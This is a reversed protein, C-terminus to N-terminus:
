FAGTVSSNISWRSQPGTSPFNPSSHVMAPFGFLGPKCHTQDLDDYRIMIHQKEIKCTFYGGGNQSNGSIACADLLQKSQVPTDSFLDNYLSLVQDILFLRTKSGYQEDLRLCILKCRQRLVNQTVHYQNNRNTNPPWINPFRSNSLGPLWVQDSINRHRSEHSNSTHRNLNITEMFPSDRRYITKSRNSFGSSTDNAHNLIISDNDDDDLLAKSGMVESLESVTSTKRQEDKYATTGSPRQIPSPRKIPKAVSSPVVRSTNDELVKTRNEHLGLIGNPNKDEMHHHHHHHHHHFPHSFSTSSIPLSHYNNLNGSLPSSENKYMNSSVKPLRLPSSSYDYQQNSSTSPLSFIGGSVNNIIPHPTLPQYTSHTSSLNQNFTTDLGPPHQLTSNLNSSMHPSKQSTNQINFSSHSQSFIISSSSLSNDSEQETKLSLFSSNLPSSVSSRIEKISETTGHFTEQNEIQPSRNLFNVSIMAEMIKQKQSDKKNDNQIKNENDKTEKVEKVEKIEKVEKPEKPEKIEKSEKIDKVEKTEKIDKVEKTEKLDKEKKIEKKQREKEAEKRKREKEIEKEKNQSQRRKEEELAKKEAERKLRLEEKKRKAEELRKEEEIRLANEEALREAEKRAKEQDKLQKQLKKKDKKREKEKAKKLEREEKLRNEEELEELLRQQREEAVKQRYATLVRQEFMRAAFIQFMRRGEEIRQEEDLTNMEDDNSEDDYEEDDSDFETTEIEMVAEEERQIRREALQEMMEIFKKGDNKLLDDAVTFIGGKVTLSNGFNFFDFRSDVNESLISEYDGDSDIGGESDDLDESRGTVSNKHLLSISNFKQQQNAYQELEEYYADYLMELEEEIAIRKRDCVSCSCSHKQQEKMKRLVAEKEIKVLGRREEEGLQLWFEKIREREEHTSINWIQDKSKRPMVRCQGTSQVMTDSGNSTHYTENAVGKKKKKRNMTKRELTGIHSDSLSFSSGLMQERHIPFTLSPLTPDYESEELFRGEHNQKCESKLFGGGVSYSECKIGSPGEGEMKKHKSRKKKKKKNRSVLGNMQLSESVRVSGEKGEEEKEVRECINHMKISM